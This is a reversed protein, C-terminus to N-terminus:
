IINDKRIDEADEMETDKNFIHSFEVQQNHAMSENEDKQDLNEAALHKLDDSGENVSDDLDEDNTIDHSINCPLIVEDWYKQTFQKDSPRTNPHQKGLLSKSADPHFAISSSDALVRKQGATCKDFWYESYFNIPLGEPVFSSISRMGESPLYHKHTQIMKENCQDAKQIEEDLRRIFQNAKESKFEM